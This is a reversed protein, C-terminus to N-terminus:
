GIVNFSSRVIGNQTIVHRTSDFTYGNSLMTKCEPRGCLFYYPNRDKATNSDFLEPVMTGCAIKQGQLAVWLAHGDGVGQCRTVRDVLAMPVWIAVDNVRPVRGIACYKIWCVSIFLVRPSPLVSTVRPAFTEKLHMDVRLRLVGDARCTKAAEVARRMSERQGCPRPLIIAQHLFGSYRAQLQPTHATHVTCLVIKVTAFQTLLHECLKVHTDAAALQPAVSHAAGCARGQPGNRFSEGVLCVVISHSM